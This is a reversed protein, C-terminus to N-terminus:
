EIAEVPVRASLWRLPGVLTGTHAQNEASPAPSKMRMSATFSIISSFNRGVTLALNGFLGM